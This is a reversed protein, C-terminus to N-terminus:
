RSSAIFVHGAFGVGQAVPQNVVKAGFVKFVPLVELLGKVFDCANVKNKVLIKYKEPYYLSSGKVM